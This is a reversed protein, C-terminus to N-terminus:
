NCAAIILPTTIENGELDSSGDRAAQHVKQIAHPM